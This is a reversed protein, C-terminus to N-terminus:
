VSVTSPRTQRSPQPCEARSETFVGTPTTCRSVTLSCFPVPSETQCHQMVQPQPPLHSTGSADGVSPSGPLHLPQPLPKIAPSQLEELHKTLLSRGPSNADRGRPPGMEIDASPRSIDVTLGTIPSPENPLSADAAAIGVSLPATTSPSNGHHSNLSSSHAHHPPQAHQHLQVSLSQPHKPLSQSVGAETASTHASRVHGSGTCVERASAFAGFSETEASREQQRDEIARRLTEPSMDYVTLSVSAAHANSTTSGSRRHRGAGNQADSASTVSNMRSGMRPSSDQSSASVSGSMVSAGSVSVDPFLKKAASDTIAKDPSRKKGGVRFSMKRDESRILGEGNRGQGDYRPSADKNGQLLSTAETPPQEIDGNGNVGDSTGHADATLAGVTITTGTNVTKSPTAANALALQQQHQLQMLQQPSLEPVSITVHSKIDELIKVASGFFIYGKLTITVVKGRHAILAAREEFTRIVTSTQLAASSVTQSSSYSVVFSAMALMIGIFM